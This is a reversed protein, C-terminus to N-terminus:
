TIESPPHLGWLDENAAKAVAKATESKFVRILSYIYNCVTM